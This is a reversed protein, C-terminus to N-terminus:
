EPQDRALRSSGEQGRALVWLLDSLRNLYRLLHSDEAAVAICAREARRAIARALDLFASAKSEGPLVFDAPPEFRESYEDILHELQDPMEGTVLSMGPRLKHRNESSTALEAMLVYLEREIRVLIGTLPDEGPLHARAVGLAAQLEDVAGLAQPLPHDKRVRGGYLLNTHGDDGTRTYIKM